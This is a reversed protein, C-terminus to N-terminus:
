RDAGRPFQASRGRHRDAPSSNLRRRPVRDITTASTLTYASAVHAWGTRSPAAPKWLM